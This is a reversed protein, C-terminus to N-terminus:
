NLRTRIPPSCVLLIVPKNLGKFKNRLFIGRGWRSSYIAPNHFQSTSQQFLVDKKRIKNIDFCALPSLIKYVLEDGYGELTM